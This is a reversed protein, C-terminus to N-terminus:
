PPAIAGDTSSGATSVPNMETRAWVPFEEDDLCWVHIKEPHYNRDTYDPPMNAFVFLHPSNKLYPGTAETGFHSCFYADKIQELARYSVKDDGKALCMLWIKCQQNKYVVALMHKREGGLPLAGFHYSLYKCFQTKGIGYSGWLWYWNRKDAKESVNAVVWRQWPTLQEETIIDLCEPMGFEWPGEVRTETKMAYADVRKEMRSKECYDIEPWVLGEHEDDFRDRVWQRRKRITTHVTGQYHLQGKGGREIQFRGADFHKRMWLFHQYRSVVKEYTLRYSWYNGLPDRERKRATEGVQRSRQYGTIGPSVVESMKSKVPM